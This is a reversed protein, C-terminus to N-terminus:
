GLFKLASHLRQSTTQLLGSFKLFDSEAMVAGGVFSSAVCGLGCWISVPVSCVSPVLPLTPSVVERLAHSRDQSFCTEM